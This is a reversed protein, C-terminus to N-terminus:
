TRKELEELLRRRAVFILIGGIVLGTVLGLGVVIISWRRFSGLALDELEKRTVVALVFAALCLLTYPLLISFRAPGGTFLIITALLANIAFFILATSVYRMAARVARKQRIYM